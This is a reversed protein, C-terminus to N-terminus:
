RVNKREGFKIEISAQEIIALGHCNTEGVSDSIDQDRRWQPSLWAKWELKIDLPELIQDIRISSLGRSFDFTPSQTVTVANAPLALCAM